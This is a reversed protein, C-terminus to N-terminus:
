EVKDRWQEEIAYSKLFNYGELRPDISSAGLLWYVIQPAILTNEMMISNSALRDPLTNATKLFVPKKTFYMQPMGPVSNNIVSDGIVNDQSLIWEGILHKYQPHSKPVATYVGRYADVTPDDLATNWLRISAIYYNTSVQDKGVYFFTSDPKLGIGAQVTNAKVRAGDYSMQYSRTAGERDGIHIYYSHWLCDNSGTVDEQLAPNSNIRLKTESRERFVGWTSKGLVKRWSSSYTGDSKPILRLNFEVAITGDKIEYLATTDRIEAYFDADACFLPATITGGKIEYSAYHPYYFLGFIDRESDSTGGTLGEPTGGINSSVVILWDEMDAHPRSNIAQQLESLYTDVQKLASKYATNELKFGGSRGADLVGRFSTIVLNYDNKEIQQLLTSQTEADGTTTKIFSADALYRNLNDFPTVCAVRMNSNVSSIQKVISPFNSVKQSSPNENVTYDSLYSGDHIFHLDSSVGTLMSAWTVPDEGTTSSGGGSVGRRNDALGTWSYKSHQLMEKIAPLEGAETMEKVLTGVGGDINVWLVHRSLEIKVSDERVTGAAVSAPTDYATCSALVAGAAMSLILNKIKM